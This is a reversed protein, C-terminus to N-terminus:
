QTCVQKILDPHLAPTITELLQLANALNQDTEKVTEEGEEACCCWL